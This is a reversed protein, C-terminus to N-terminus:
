KANIGGVQPAFIYQTAATADQRGFGLGRRFKEINNEIGAVM